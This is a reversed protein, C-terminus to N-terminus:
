SDRVTYGGFLINSDPDLRWYTSMGSGRLWGVLTSHNIYDSSLPNMHPREARKIKEEEEEKGKSLM